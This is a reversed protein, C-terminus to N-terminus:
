DALIPDTLPFHEAAISKRTLRSMCDAIANKKRAHFLDKQEQHRGITQCITGWDTIFNFLDQSSCIGPGPVTFHYNGIQAIVNLLKSSEANVRIQHYGSVRDTKDLRDKFVDHYEKLIHERLKTCKRDTRSLKEKSSIRSKEYIASIKNQDFVHTLNRFYTGLMEAPFTPHIM